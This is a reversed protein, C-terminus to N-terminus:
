AYREARGSTPKGDREEERHLLRATKIQPEAPTHRQPTGQGNKGLDVHAESLRL